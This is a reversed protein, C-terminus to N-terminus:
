FGTRTDKLERVERELQELREREKNRTLSLLEMEQQLGAVKAKEDQRAKIALSLVKGINGWQIWSKQMKIRIEDSAGIGDLVIGYADPWRVGSTIECDVPCLQSLYLATPESVTVPSSGFALEKLHQFRPLFDATTRPPTSDGDVYLALYKIQPCHHAFPILARLTLTPAASEPIPESHLHLREMAPWSEALEEMDLDGLSLQYDWRIELKTLKRCSLLPRLAELSPRAFPPPPSSVVPAGPSLIFDLVLETLLKVRNITTLLEHLVPPNDIALINIRLCTISSPFHPRGIFTTAHQLHASFSLKRLSIFSDDEIVPAFHGVDARDGTGQEIPEAFSIAELQASSALATFIDNSLHFLPLTLQRLYPLGRLLRQVDNEIDRVPHTSRFELNVVRPAREIIADVYTALSPDDCKNLQITLNRLESHMVVSSRYQRDPESMCWTVSHVNPLLVQRPCTALLQEYTSQDLAKRRVFARRNDFMIERVRHSYRDFRTWDSPGLSRRFKWYTVVGQAQRRSEYSTLPALLSLLPRIDTVVHWLTDLAVDSWQHCVRAARAVSRNDLNSFILALIESIFIPQMRGNQVIFAM